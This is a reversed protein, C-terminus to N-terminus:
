GIFDRLQAAIDDDFEVMEVEGRLDDSINFTIKDKGEDGFWREFTSHMIYGHFPHYHEIVLYDYTDGDCDDLSLVWHVYSEDDAPLPMLVGDGYVFVAAPGPKHIRFVDNRFQVIDDDTVPLMKDFDFKPKLM